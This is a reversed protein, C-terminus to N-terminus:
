IKKYKKIVREMKVGYRSDRKNNENFNMLNEVDNKVM